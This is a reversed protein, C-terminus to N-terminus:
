TRSSYAAHVDSKQSIINIVQHPFIEPCFGSELDLGCVLLTRKRTLLFFSPANILM